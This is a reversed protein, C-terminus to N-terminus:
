DNSGPKYQHYHTDPYAYRQDYFSKTAELAKGRFYIYIRHDEPRVLRADTARYRIDLIGTNFLEELIEKSYARIVDDTTMGPVLDAILAFEIDVVPFSKGTHAIIPAFTDRKRQLGFFNLVKDLIKM